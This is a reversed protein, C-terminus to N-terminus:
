DMSDVVVASDAEPLEYWPLREGVRARLKWGLSKPEEEIMRLLTEIRSNVLESDVPPLPLSQLALRLKSLNMSFTKCMGWDSACLRAIYPGNITEGDGSGIEHDLLLSTVDSFDKENIQVIQLKTALLDALPLTRPELEVRQRFDFRHCMEFVDLFIDVRRQNVLDNFVLRKGGMMANFRQRPQYGMERFLKSIAGSQKVHGVFDLDLYKRRLGDQSASPCRIAIAVGGLLKLVVRGSSSADLIRLAEEQPSIHM